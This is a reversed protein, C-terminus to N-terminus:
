NIRCKEPQEKATDWFLCEHESVVELGGPPIDDFLFTVGAKIYNPQGNSHRHCQDDAKPNLILHGVVPKQRTEPLGIPGHDSTAPVSHRLSAAPRGAQRQRIGDSPLDRFHFIYSLRIKAPHM